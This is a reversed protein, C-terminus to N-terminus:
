RMSSKEKVRVKLGRSVRLLKLVDQLNPEEEPTYQLETVVRLEEEKM